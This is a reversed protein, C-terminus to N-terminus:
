TGTPQLVHGHLTPRIIRRPNERKLQGYHPCKRYDGLCDGFAENLRSLRFHGSCRPDDVDIFPCARPPSAHPDFVLDSWDAFPARLGNLPKTSDDVLPARHRSNGM